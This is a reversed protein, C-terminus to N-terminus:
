SFRTPRREVGRKMATAARRSNSVTLAQQEKRSLLSLHFKRVTSRAQWDSNSQASLRIATPSWLKMVEAICLSDSVEDKLPSNWQKPALSWM